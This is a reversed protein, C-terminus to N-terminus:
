NRPLSKPLFLSPLDWPIRSILTLKQSRVSWTGEVHGVDLSAAAKINIFVKKEWKFPSNQIFFIAGLTFGNDFLFPLNWRPRDYVHRHVFLDFSLSAVSGAIPNIVILLSADLVSTANVRNTIVEHRHQVPCTGIETTSIAWQCKGVQGFRTQLM